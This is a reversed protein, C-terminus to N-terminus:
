MESAQGLVGSFMLHQVLVAQPVSLLPFQRKVEDQLEPTVSVFLHGPGSLKLHQMGSDPPPPPYGGGVIGDVLEPHLATAISPAFSM